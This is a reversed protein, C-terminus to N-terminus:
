PKAEPPANAELAAAYENQKSTYVFEEEAEINMLAALVAEAECKLLGTITTELALGAVGYIRGSAWKDRDQIGFPQYVYPAKPEINSM